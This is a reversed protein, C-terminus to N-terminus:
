SGIMRSQSSIIEEQKEKKEEIIRKANELAENKKLIRLNHELVVNKIEERNLIIKHSSLANFYSFVCHTFEHIIFKM